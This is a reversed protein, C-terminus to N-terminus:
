SFDWDTTLDYTGETPYYSTMMPLFDKWIKDSRQDWISPKHGLLGKIGRYAHNDDLFEQYTKYHKSNIHLSDDVVNMRDLASKEFEDVSSYKDFDFASRNTICDIMSDVSIVTDYEDRIEYKDNEFLKKWDSLSYIDLFPYICLSFNWGCSSKGIHLGKEEVMCKSLDIYLERHGKDYQSKVLWEVDSGLRHQPIHWFENNKKYLYYNCGM